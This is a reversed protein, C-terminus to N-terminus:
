QGQKKSGNIKIYLHANPAPKFASAAALKDNYLQALRDVLANDVDLGADELVFAAIHAPNYIM